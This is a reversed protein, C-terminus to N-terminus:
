NSILGLSGTRRPRLRCSTLSTQARNAQHTSTTSSLNAAYECPSAIRARYERRRLCRPCASRSPDGHEDIRGIGRGGLGCRSVHLSSGAPDPRLDLPEIGARAPLDVPGECSNKKAFRGVCEEHAAVRRCYRCVASRLSPLRPLVLLGILLSRRVEASALLGPYPRRPRRSSDNMAILLKAAIAAITPM